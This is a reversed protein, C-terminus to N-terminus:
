ALEATRTVFGAAGDRIPPYFDLEAQMRHHPQGHFDLEGLSRWHLRQFLLLNRSQVHAFFANCGRAHASSVALRILSTGLGAQRRYDRRVALRSGWWEGPAAGCHIRVTGVVEDECGCLQALAVLVIAHADIADWDDGAFLGQEACFVARRLAAAGALEWPETAFKVRHAPSIYPHVPELMM